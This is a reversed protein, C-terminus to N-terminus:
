FAFASRFLAPGFDSHFVLVALFTAAARARMQLSSLDRGEGFLLTLADM